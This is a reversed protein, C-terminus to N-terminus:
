AVEAIIAAVRAQIVEAIDVYEYVPPRGPVDVRLTAYKSGMGAGACLEFTTGTEPDDGHVWEIQFGAFITPHSARYFRVAVEEHGTTIDDRGLSRGGQSVHKVPTGDHQDAM